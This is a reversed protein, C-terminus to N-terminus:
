RKTDRDVISFGVRASGSSGSGLREQEPRMCGITDLTGRSGCAPGRPAMVHFLPLWETSGSSGYAAEWAFSQSECSARGM